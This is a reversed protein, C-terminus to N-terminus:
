QKDSSHIVMAIGGTILSSQPQFRQSFVEVISSETLDGFDQISVGRSL